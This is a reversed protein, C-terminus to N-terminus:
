APVKLSDKEHLDGNSLMEEASPPPSHPLNGEEIGGSSPSLNRVNVCKEM